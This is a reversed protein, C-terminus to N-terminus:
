VLLNLLSFTMLVLISFSLIPSISTGASLYQPACVCRDNSFKLIPPSRNGLSIIQASPITFCDTAFTFASNPKSSLSLAFVIKSAVCSTILPSRSSWKGSTTQCVPLPVWVLIFVLSTMALRAMSICRPSSPLLVGIWGFSWTFLDCDVFSAKGVAMWTAVTLWILFWRIGATVWKRFAKSSFASSNLSITFIPRVWRCSAVGSVRPWSHEPYPCCSVLASLVM